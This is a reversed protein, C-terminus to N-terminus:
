IQNEFHGGNEAVRARCRTKISSSVSALTAHKDKIDEAAAVIRAVLELETNVPTEYVYTKMQGWFFFDLPTLDPSRAPWAVPGGRGIWKNPYGRNLLAIVERTTHAPAGDHQLWLRRRINLPLDDLLEPLVNNLFIFYNEGNLRNPLIYPGIVYEGVIGAWVNVSFRRQHARIFTAHPNEDCWLHNNRSNFVGDRTFCAEDTFLIFKEFRRQLNCRELFWRCFLLRPQFDEPGLAQVKQRSFPHLGQEKLVQWVTVHNVDLRNAIVRTSTSPEDEIINLVAEEFAPTRRLRNSNGGITPHFSGTESLRICIRRFIRCSPRRRNPYRRRYIRRAEQANRRAEGFVLLMDVLEANQYNHM